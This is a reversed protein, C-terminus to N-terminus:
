RLPQPSLTEAVTWKGNFLGVLVIENTDASWDSAVVQIVAPDLESKVAKLSFGCKANSQICLHDWVDPREIDVQVAAVIIGNVLLAVVRPPVGGDALLWGTASIVEDDIVYEEVFGLCRVRDFERVEEGGRPVVPRSFEVAYSQRTTAVVADTLELPLEAVQLWENGFRAAVTLRVGEWSWDLAKSFGKDQCLWEVVNRLEVVLSFACPEESEIERSAWVDHRVIDVPAAAVAMGDISLAVMSPAVNEGSLMWGEFRVEELNASANEIFGFYSDLALFFPDTLPVRGLPPIDADSLHVLPLWRSDSIEAQELPQRNFVITEAPQEGASSRAAIKEFEALAIEFGVVDALKKAETAMRFRDVEGLSKLREVTSQMLTHDPLVIANSGDRFLNDIGGKNTFVPICGCFAAELSLLGLGEFISFDVMFEAESFLQRLGTWPVAGIARSPLEGVAGAGFYVVDFGQRMAMVGFTVALSPGKNLHTSVHIAILNRQRHGALEFFKYRSPGFKVTSITRIGLGAYYDRMYSSVAVVGDVLKLDRLINASNEGDGFLSEPGQAFLYLPKRYRNAVTRATGISPGSTAYVQGINTVCRFLDSADTFPMFGRSYFFSADVEGLALIAAKIGADILGDVIDFVANGGGSTYSNKSLPLVFLIDLAKKKRWLIRRDSRRRLMDFAGIVRRPSLEAKDVKWRSLFKRENIQSLAISKAHDLAFSQFGLHKVYLNDVLVSRLGKAKTRFHLDTDEWYGKGYTEVDFLMGDILPVRKKHVAIMFGSLKASDPFTPKRRSVINDIELWDSGLGYHISQADARNSLPSALAVNEDHFAAVMRSVWKPAVVVDSNVIVVIDSSLEAFAANCNGGFGLNQENQRFSFPAGAAEVIALLNKAVDPASVDDSVLIRDIRSFDSNAKLSLILERVRNINDYVPIVVSVRM